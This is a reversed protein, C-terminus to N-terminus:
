RPNLRATLTKNKLRHMYPPSTPCGMRKYARKFQEVKLLKNMSVLVARSVTIQWPRSFRVRGLLAAQM